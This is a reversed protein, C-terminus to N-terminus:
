EASHPQQLSAVAEELTAVRAALEALEGEGHGGPGMAGEPGM